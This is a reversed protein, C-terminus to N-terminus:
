MAACTQVLTQKGTHWTFLRAMIISKVYIYIHAMVDSRRVEGDLPRLARRCPRAKEKERVQLSTHTSLPAIFGGSDVIHQCSRSSEPHCSMVLLITNCLPGCTRFKLQLAVALDFSDECLTQWCQNRLGVTRRFRPLSRPVGLPLSSRVARLDM